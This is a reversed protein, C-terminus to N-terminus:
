DEDGFYLRISDESVALGLENVQELFEEKYDLDFDEWEDDAVHGDESSKLYGLGGTNSHVRRDKLDKEALRNLLSLGDDISEVLAHAPASPVSRIWWVRLQINSSMKKDGYYTIALM